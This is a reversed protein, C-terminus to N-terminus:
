ISQALLPQAVVVTSTADHTPLHLACPAIGSISFTTPRFAVWFGLHGMKKAPRRLYHVAVSAVKLLFEGLIDCLDLWTLRMLIHRVM